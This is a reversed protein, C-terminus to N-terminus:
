PVATLQGSNVATRAPRPFTLIFSTGRTRTREVAINGGHAEMVRTCMSLRLGYGGTDQTRSRDV